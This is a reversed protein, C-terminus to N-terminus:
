SLCDHDLFAERCAEVNLFGTVMCGYLCLFFWERGDFHIALEPEGTQHISHSVM